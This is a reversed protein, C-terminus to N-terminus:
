ALDGYEIRTLEEGVLEIGTITDLITQPTQNGLGFAPEAMWKNFEPTSGFVSIGKEYLAFLKLLKESVTPDLSQNHIKYSTFTKITKNLLREIIQGSYQSLTIFDFVAEPKLGKKAHLLLTISNDFSKQYKELVLGAREREIQIMSM